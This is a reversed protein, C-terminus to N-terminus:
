WLLLIVVAVIVVRSSSIFIVGRIRRHVWTHLYSRLCVCVCVCVSVTNEGLSQTVALSKNGALLEQIKQDQDSMKQGQADQGTASVELTIQGGAPVGQVPQDGGVNILITQGQNDVIAPPNASVQIVQTASM